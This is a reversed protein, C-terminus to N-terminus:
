QAKKQSSNSRLSLDEGKAIKLMWTFLDETLYHLSAALYQRHEPDNLKLWKSSRKEIHSLGHATINWRGHEEDGVLGEMVLDKRRFCLDNEWITDHDDEYRKVSDDDPISMLNRCFVLNLVHRKSPHSYNNKRLIYLALLVILSQQKVKHEIM